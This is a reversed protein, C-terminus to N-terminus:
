TNKQPAMSRDPPAGPAMMIDVCNIRQPPSSCRRLPGLHGAPGLLCRLSRELVWVHRVVWKRPCVCPQGCPSAGGCTEKSATVIVLRRSRARRALVNAHRTQQRRGYQDSRAAHGVHFGGSHVRVAANTVSNRPTRARGARSSGTRPPAREGGGPVEGAMHQERRCPMMHGPGAPREETTPSETSRCGPRLRVRWCRRHDGDHLPSTRGLVERTCRFNM